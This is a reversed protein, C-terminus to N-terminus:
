PFNLAARRSRLQPSFVRFAQTMRPATTQPEPRLGTLTRRAPSDQIGTDLEFQVCRLSPWSVIVQSGDSPTKADAHGPYIRIKSFQSKLEARFEVAGGCGPNGEYLKGMQTCLPGVRDRRGSSVTDKGGQKARQTSRLWAPIRVSSPSHLLSLRSFGVRAGVCRCLRLYKLPKARSRPARLPFQKESSLCNQYPSPFVEKRQIRGTVASASLTLTGSARSGSPSPFGAQSM